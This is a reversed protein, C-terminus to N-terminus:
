KEFARSAMEDFDASHRGLFQEWLEKDWLEAHDHVGLLMVDRTLQAYEVLREPIRIRGQSDLDVREARSYFLRLYNRVEARNSSREALRNALSEFSEPSYLGLSHETEPAIFLSEPEKGSASFQVRLRKPVALRQKEDLTRTYTGTLTTM